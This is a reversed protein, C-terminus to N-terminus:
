EVLDEIRLEPRLRLFKVGHRFTHQARALDASVEAVIPEILTLEVQDRGSSNFRDFAGPSVTSPWPHPGVPPQLQSALHKAQRTTLAHARGVIRLKGDIPLGLVVAEPQTIPGIVAAAIVDITERRKM